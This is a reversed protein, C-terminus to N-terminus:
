FLDLVIKQEIKQGKVELHTQTDGKKMMMTPLVCVCVSHVIILVIFLRKMTLCPRDNPRDIPQDIMMMMIPVIELM